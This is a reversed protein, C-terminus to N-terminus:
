YIVVPVYAGPYHEILKGHKERELLSLATSLGDAVTASPAVVSISQYLDGPANTKPNIIHHWSNNKGFRTGYGGSTALAMNELEVVSVTGHGKPNQIGIQWPTNKSNRGLGFSEGLQVLVQNLGQRRLLATVKDTIYGQAIGNLTIQMGPTSFNILEDSIQIKRYDILEKLSSLKKQDPTEGNLYYLYQWVPQLSVDFVGGSLEALRNSERLLEVFEPPPSHLQANQNLQRILSGPHFLSFMKELRSIENLCLKVIREAEIRSGLLLKMNASGGLVEGTWNFANQSSALVDSFPLPITSLSAAGIIQLFRRRSIGSKINM